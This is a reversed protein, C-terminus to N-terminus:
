RSRDRERAHKITDSRARQIDRSRIFGDERPLTKVNVSRVSDVVQQRGGGSRNQVINRTTGGGGDSTRDIGVTVNVQQIRGTDDNRLRGRDVGTAKVGARNSFGAREEGGSSGQIERTAGRRVDDNLGVTLNGRALDGGDLCEAGTVLNGEGTAADEDFTRIEETIHRQLRSGGTLDIQSLGAVRNAARM